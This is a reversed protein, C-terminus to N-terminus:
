DTQFPRTACPKLCFIVCLFIRFNDTKHYHRFVILYKGFLIPLFISLLQSLEARSRM